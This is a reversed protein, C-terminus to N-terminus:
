PQIGGIFLGAFTALLAVHDHNGDHDSTLPRALFPRLTPTAPQSARAMSARESIGVAYVAM